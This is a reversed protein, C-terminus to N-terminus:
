EHPQEADTLNVRLGSATLQLQRITVDHRSAQVKAISVTRATTQGRTEVGLVVSNDALPSAQPGPPMAIGDHMVRVSFLSTARARRLERFLAAFFAAGREEYAPTAVISALGDVFVRRAGAQKVADLLRYGVEDLSAGFRPQGVVHLAGQRRLGALDTEFAASIKDAMEGSEDLGFLLGPEVSTAKALFQLGLLTKGAGEPGTIATVSGAPYGGGLMDDLGPVGTSVRDCAPEPPAVSLPLAELQPFLAIGDDGIRFTHAGHLVRAGRFKVVELTREHRSRVLQQQLLLIGDVM